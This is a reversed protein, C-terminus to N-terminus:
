QIIAIERKQSQQFLIVRDKVFREYLKSHRSQFLELARPSEFGPNSYIWFFEIHKKCFPALLSIQGNEFFVYGTCDQPPEGCVFCKQRNLLEMAGGLAQYVMSRLDAIAEGFQAEEISM